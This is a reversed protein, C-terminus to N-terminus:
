FTHANSTVVRMIHFCGCFERFLEFLRDRITHRDVFFQLDFLRMQRWRTDLSPLTSTM